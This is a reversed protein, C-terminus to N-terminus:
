LYLITWNNANLRKNKSKLQRKLFTVFGWNRNDEENVMPNSSLMWKELLLVFICLSPPQPTFLGGGGDIISQSISIFLWLRISGDFSQLRVYFRNPGGDDHGLASWVPQRTKGSWWGKNDVNEIKGKYYDTHTILTTTLCLFVTIM